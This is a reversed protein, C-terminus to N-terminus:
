ISYCIDTVPWSASFLHGYLIWFGLQYIHLAFGIGLICPFNYLILFTTLVQPSPIQQSIIDEFYSMSASNMFDWWLQGFLVQIIVACTSIIINFLFIKCTGIELYLNLPFWHSSLTIIIVKWGLSLTCLLKDLEMHDNKSM